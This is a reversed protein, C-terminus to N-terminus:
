IIRGEPEVERSVMAYYERLQTFSREDGHQACARAFSTVDTVALILRERRPEEVSLGDMRMGDVSYGDM